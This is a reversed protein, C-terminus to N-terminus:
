PYSDVELWDMEVSVRATGAAGMLITNRLVLGENTALVLPYDSPGNLDFTLNFLGKPVTAAAALESFGDAAIPQADLTHTGATLAGTTGVRIDAVNTTAFSARKKANNGSLTLGTGGTHSASYSRAMILDLGVEQASTFGAITRWKVMINTVLCLKTAHSWRFAFIHGATSTAAAVTTLLGSQAMMRFAGNAGIEPPRSSVKLARTTSEVEAITGSSGRVQVSM